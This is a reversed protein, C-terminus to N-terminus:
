KENKLIAKAEGILYLSGSIVLMRNDGEQAWGIGHHIAKKFDPCILVDSHYKEAIRALEEAPTSRPSDPMTVTVKDAFSCLISTVNEVDKDCLVGLILCIEKDSFFLKVAEALAAAGSPNHAGDLLVSPNSRAMELRGPWRSHKLGSYIAETSINFGMEKLIMICSLACAANLQQHKGALSITLGKFTEKRWSFDFCQEPFTSYRERVQNSSVPYYSCGHKKALEELVKEAQEAQPYSVVPVGPKIIGGKEFAIEPLTSGLIGTHDYSISTIVSVLPLIVNTADLRGGLGVEIVAIDVKQRAFWLFGLATVVEFVTPHNFGDGVMREIQEKVERTLVALEERPIEQYGIQIRETFNELYPSVFMGVRYGAKHLMSATMATVSGKGNTGAVHVTPFTTHPNGLRKLLETINQLGLKSGLKATHYIYDLAEDYNM